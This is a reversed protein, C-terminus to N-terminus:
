TWVGAGSDVKAMIFWTGFRRRSRLSSGTLTMAFCYFGKLEECVRKVNDWKRYIERAEEEYTVQGEESQKNDDITKLKGNPQVRGFHIDMETSTYDVGQNRDCHPFYIM